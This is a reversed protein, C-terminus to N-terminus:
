LTLEVIFTVKNDLSALHRDALLLEKIAKDLAAGLQPGEVHRYVHREHIAHCGELSRLREHKVEGLM